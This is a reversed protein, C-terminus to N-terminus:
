PPRRKKPLLRFLFVLPEGCTRCHRAAEPTLRPAHCARTHGSKAAQVPTPCVALLTRSQALAPRRSPSLLGYSRVTICGKPLVHQLFRRMCAEAPLTRHTWTHRTREKVRFTVSGDECKELRNNTIAIRSLSPAFSALGETGTGAPQCHTMWGQRWVQPPVHALLGTTTLAAQFKGRFLTSLAHVPVLWDSSRPTLWTSGDPALAGGPVLYHIHPHYAMERTWTHLVGMRGLQGGLSKPDLALAQLAASAPQM